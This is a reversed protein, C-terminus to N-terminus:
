QCSFDVCNDTLFIINREEVYVVWRFRNKKCENAVWGLGFM